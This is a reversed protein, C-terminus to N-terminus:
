KLALNDSWLLERVGLFNLLFHVEGLLVSKKQIESNGAVCFIFMQLSNIISFPFDPILVPYMIVTSSQLVFVFM